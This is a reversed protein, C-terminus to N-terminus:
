NFSNGRKHLLDEHLILKFKNETPFDPSASRICNDGLFLNMLLYDAFYKQLCDTLLWAGIGAETPAAALSM